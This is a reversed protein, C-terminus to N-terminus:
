DFGSMAVDQAIINNISCGDLGPTFSLDSQQAVRRVRGRRVESLAGALRYLIGHRQSVTKAVTVIYLGVQASVFDPAYRPRGGNCIM